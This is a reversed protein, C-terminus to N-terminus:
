SAESTRITGQVDKFIEWIQSAHVLDPAGLQFLGGGQIYCFRKVQYGRHLGGSSPELPQGPGSNVKGETRGATSPRYDVIGLCDKQPSWHM